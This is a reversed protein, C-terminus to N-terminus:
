IIDIILGVRIILNNKKRKKIKFYNKKTKIASIGGPKEVFYTTKKICASIIQM